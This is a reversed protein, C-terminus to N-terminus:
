LSSRFACPSSGTAAKSRGVFRPVTRLRLLKRQLKQGALRVIKQIGREAIQRHDLLHFFGAQQLHARGIGPRTTDDIAVHHPDEIAAAVDLQPRPHIARNLGPTTEAFSLQALNLEPFRLM